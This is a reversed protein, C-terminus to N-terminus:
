LLSGKEDTFEVTIEGKLLKMVEKIDIWTNKKDAPNRLLYAPHYTVRLPIGHYNHWKGRLINLPSNTKLLTQASIRGLACVVKPKIIQLQQILYPECNFVEMPNPDRNDPPRCKLVNCIYVDERRMKMGKVIIDTLLQGARGVFPLGQRDEEAGPAEGVFVLEARPNGVGFVTHTRGSHLPCKTCQQVEKNIEDLQEQVELLTPKIQGKNADISKEGNNMNIPQSEQDNDITKDIQKIHKVFTYADLNDWKKLIEPSVIIANQYNLRQNFFSLLDDFLEEFKKQIIM